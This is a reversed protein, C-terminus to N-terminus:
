QVVSRSEPLGTKWLDVAAALTLNAYRKEGEEEGFASIYVRRCFTAINRLVEIRGAIVIQHQPHEVIIEQL